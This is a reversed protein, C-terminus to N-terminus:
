KQSNTPPIKSKKSQQIILKVNHPNEFQFILFFGSLFVLFLDLVFGKLILGLTKESLVDKKEQGGSICL